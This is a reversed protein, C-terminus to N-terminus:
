QVSFFFTMKKENMQGKLLKSPENRESRAGCESASSDVGEGESVRERGREVCAIFSTLLRSLFAHGNNHGITAATDLLLPNSLLKNNTKTQKNTKTIQKLSLNEVSRRFDLVLSM